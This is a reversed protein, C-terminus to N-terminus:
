EGAATSAGGVGGFSGEASAGENAGCGPMQLSLAAVLATLVVSSRDLAPRNM